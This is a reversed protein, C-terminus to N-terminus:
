VQEFSHPELAPSLVRNSRSASSAAAAIVDRLEAVTPRDSLIMLPTIEVGFDNSLIAAIRMAILSDGGLDLFHTRPEVVELHLATCWVSAIASLLPDAPDSTAAPAVPCTAPDPLAHRDVKGSSALPLHDVFVFVSPVMFSPVQQRLHTRLQDATASAGKPLKVYAVLRREGDVERTTVSVDEVLPHQALLSEVETLEVRFGRIKVQDDTRGVIELRGSPLFRALDGTRYLRCSPRSPDDCFRLATLGPSNLFERALHPASICLEGVAGMPMRNLQKDLVYVSTNPFPTGVSWPEQSAGSSLVQTIAAVGIETSGYGHIFSTHPLAELFGPIINQSTTAGGFAVTGVQRLRSSLHSDALVQKLVPTMLAINGIREAEFAATLRDLDQEVGDPLIVLTLGSMLPLFLRALTFSFSLSTHLCCIEDGDHPDFPPSSLGAIISGHVGVVGKPIGTSGSTYIIYAANQPSVAVSPFSTSLASIAASEDADLRMVRAQTSPIRDALQESTLIIPVSAHAVLQALRASPQTIDLPVYTGGAKLVALIAVVATPTRDLFIAVRTELTVGIEVLYHALQSSRADLTAYSMEEGAYKLALKNPNTRARETVLGAITAQPPTWVPGDCLALSPAFEQSAMVLSDFRCAEVDAAIYEIWRSLCASFRAFVWDDLEERNVRMAVRDEAVSARVRLVCSPASGLPGATHAWPIELLIVLPEESAVESRMIPFRLALDAVVDVIRPNDSLDLQTLECAFEQEQSVGLRVQQWFSHAAGFAAVFAAMSSASHANHQRSLAIVVRSIDVGLRIESQAGAGTVTLTGLSCQKM